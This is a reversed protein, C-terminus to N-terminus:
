MASLNCAPFTHTRDGDRVRDPRSLQTTITHDGGDLGPKDTRPVSGMEIVLRPAVQILHPWYRRATQHGLMTMVRTTSLVTDRSRNAVTSALTM